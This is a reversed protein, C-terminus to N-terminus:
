RFLDQLREALSAPLEDLELARVEDRIRGIDGGSWVQFLAWHGRQEPSLNTDVRLFPELLSALEEPEFEAYRKKIRLGEVEDSSFMVGERDAEIPRYDAGQIRFRSRQLSEDASFAEILVDKIEGLAQYYRVEFDRRARIDALSPEKLRQLDRVVQEFDWTRVMAADVAAELQAEEENRLQEEEALRHADAAVRLATELSAKRDVLAPLELHADVTIRELRRAAKDFEGDAILGRIEREISGFAAVADAEIAEIEQLALDHFETGQYKEPYNRLREIARSRFGGDRDIAVQDLMIALANEAERLLREQSLRAQLQSYLQEYAARLEAVVADAPYEQELLELKELAAELDPENAALVGRLQELDAQRQAEAAQKLRREERWAEVQQEAADAQASLPDEAFEARVQAIVDLIKEEDRVSIAMALANELRHAEQAHLKSQHMWDLVQSAILFSLLGVAAVLAALAALKKGLPRRDASGEALFGGSASETPYKERLGYLVKLLESAHQFRENPDKRMLREVVAAVDAGIEPRKETLRTPEEEVHKMLIDQPSHGRFPTDGTLMEYWSCGLSYLDVRHDIMRGLAQEPAMYHPSGSIGDQQSVQKGDVARQAIGLDGIKTVEGEGVMLNSPKIDRHIFRREEAYRLGEATDTVIKLSQAVTLKGHKALLDTVSGVSVYEMSFFYVGDESGVDYVQIINPHNLQGAARAETVFKRIFAQDRALEKALVKFAVERELRLQRARYVTGMGGRGIREAIEYGALVRGTCEGVDFEHSEEIFSLMTEGIVIGDGFELIASQVRTGNHLTGNASGMDTLVWNGGELEIKLHRRSVMADALSLTNSQERGVTATVTDSFSCRKGRSKGKEVQLVPM